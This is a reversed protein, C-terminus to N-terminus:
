NQIIQKNQCLGSLVYSGGAEISTRTTCPFDRSKLFLPNNMISVSRYSVFINNFFDKINNRAINIM